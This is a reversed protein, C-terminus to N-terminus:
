GKTLVDVVAALRRNDEKLRRLEQDRELNAKREAEERPCVMYGGAPQNRPTPEDSSVWYDRLCM